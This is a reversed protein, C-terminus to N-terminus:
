KLIKLVGVIVSHYYIVKLSAILWQIIKLKPRTSCLLLSLTNQKKDVLFNLNM